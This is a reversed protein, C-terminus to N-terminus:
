VGQMMEWRMHWSRERRVEIDVPQPKGAQIEVMLRYRHPVTPLAVHCLRAQAAATGCDAGRFVKGGSALTLAAPMGQPVGPCDFVEARTEIPDVISTSVIGPALAEDKRESTDDVLVMCGTPNSLTTFAVEEFQHPWLLVGALLLFLGLLIWSVIRM